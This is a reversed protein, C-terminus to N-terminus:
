EDDGITIIRHIEDSQFGLSMPRKVGPLVIVDYLEEVIGEIRLWHLTDGTETDIVMLGCRPAAGAKTLKEDLPLGQFTGVERPQSLGVVAYKGACSLVSRTEVL